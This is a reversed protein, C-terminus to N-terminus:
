NTFREKAESAKEIKGASHAEAILQDRFEPAHLELMANTLLHNFPLHKTHHHIFEGLSDFVNSDSEKPLKLLPNPMAEGVGINARFIAAGACQMHEPSLPTDNGKYGKAAHCPLFFPGLIQGLYVEIPSGGLGGPECQRSFPCSSCAKDSQSCSNCSSAATASPTTDRKM